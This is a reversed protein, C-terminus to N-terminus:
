SPEQDRVIREVEPIHRINRMLAALHDRSLVQVIFYLEVLRGPTNRDMGFHKINANADSIAIAVRGVASNMNHITINLRVEYLQDLESAWEVHMWRSQDVSSAKKAVPCSQAHIMLGHDQCIQGIIPTRPIPKCCPALHISIGDAGKIILPAVTATESPVIEEFEVLKRALVSPLHHGLGIDTFLEKKSKKGLSQILSNWINETVTEPMVGLSQLESNLMNEGLFGSAEQHAVKLFQKIKSRARSTKAYNLWEPNPTANRSTVIEVQNGHALEASLPMPEHDIRAAVCRHGVDTHVAYAFDIVTAGRPFSLIKGKPTFVYVEEPFLDEKVQEVFESSDVNLGHPELLSQLWKHTKDQLEASSTESDKYLWHAAIGEEAMHHMRATRIQIEIPTGYPGILTTHLSQYGNIKALAIYDKIKGPVPKYKAHLAGLALYCSPIDKAIIRFGYIDLVQTFSLKKEVMKHHISYLSEERGFVEADINDEQLKARIGELIKSLLERRNRRVAKIARAFIEFRRPHIHKFAIDELKRSLNHLGLRKAVPAYMDLTEQAIRRRKEARFPDMTHMNHYRDALKILVVRIDRAMAMMMKRFNEAQMAQYSQSEIKDLKSVGDVLDAVQRGFREAIETKTVATDELVDHLMTAAIGQADMQWEALATAVALPHTIYPEGTLRIQGEHVKEAFAYAEEVLQIESPQLYSLTNIFTKYNLDQTFLQGDVRMSTAANSIENEQGSLDM